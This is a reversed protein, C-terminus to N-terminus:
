GSVACPFPLTRLMGGQPSPLHLQLSQSAERACTAANRLKPVHHPEALTMPLTLRRM